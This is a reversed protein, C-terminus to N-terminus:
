QDEKTAQEYDQRERKTALRASIIRIRPVRETFSVFVLRQQESHGVIIERREDTSHDPDDIIKALPDAFVTLAEQFSVRHNTLNEAAKTADWEFQLAM